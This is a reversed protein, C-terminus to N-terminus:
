YVPSIRITKAASARYSAGNATFQIAPELTFEGPLVARLVVDVVTTDTANGYVKLHSKNPQLSINASEDPASDFQLGAPLIVDVCGDQAGSPFDLTLIVTDGVNLATISDESTGDLLCAIEGIRGNEKLLAGGSVSKKVQGYTVGELSRIEIKGARCGACRLSGKHCHTM